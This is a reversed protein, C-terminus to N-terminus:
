RYERVRDLKISSRMRKYEDEVTTRSQRKKVEEAKREAEAEEEERPRRLEVKTVKQVPISGAKKDVKKMAKELEKEGQRGGNNAEGFISEMLFGLWPCDRGDPKYDIWRNIEVKSRM